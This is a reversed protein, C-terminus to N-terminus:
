KMRKVRKKIRFLDRLMRVSDRLIHVKGGPRNEIIRVPMEGFTIGLRTGIMIAEFDFAFRDVQARTFIEQAASARFAKIGSQSDSLRLGFFLRLVLRYTRSFLRRALTYGAYGDPHLARSGIVAEYQPHDDMFAAMEGIVGCGYALDCDTFIVVKGAAALMGMRVACGKGRNQAYRLVRTHGDAHNEVIESSNDTSGDDVFIIEYDKEFAEKMYSQVTTVTDKLIASENYMPIILTIKLPM